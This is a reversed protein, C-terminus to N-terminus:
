PARSGAGLRYISLRNGDNEPVVLWGRTRDVMLDAPAKLGAALTLTPRGPIRPVLLLRGGVNDSVYFAGGQEAADIGDPSGLGRAIERWSGHGDTVSLMGTRYGVVYLTDGSRFSATRV